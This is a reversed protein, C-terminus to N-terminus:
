IVFLPKWWCSFAILIDIDMRSRTTMSFGIRGGFIVRQMMLMMMYSIHYIHNIYIIYSAIHYIVYIDIYVWWTSRLVIVRPTGGCSTFIIFLSVKDVNFLSLLCSLICVYLFYCYIGFIQNHCHYNRSINYDVMYRLNRDSNKFSVNNVIYCLTSM